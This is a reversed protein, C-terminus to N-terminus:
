NQVSSKITSEIRELIASIDILNIIGNVGFKCIIKWSAPRCYFVTIPNGFHKPIVPPFVTEYELSQM